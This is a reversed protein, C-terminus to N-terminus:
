IKGRTIAHSNIRSNEALIRNTLLVYYVEFSIFAISSKQVSELMTKEANLEIGTSLATKGM